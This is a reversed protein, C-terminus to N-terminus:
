DGKTLIGKLIGLGRGVSTGGETGTREKVVSNSFRPDLVVGSSGSVWRVLSM